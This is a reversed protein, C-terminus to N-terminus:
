FNWPTANLDKAWKRANRKGRPIVIEDVQERIGNGINEIVLVAYQGSRYDYYSAARVM